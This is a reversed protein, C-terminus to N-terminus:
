GLAAELAETTSNVLILDPDKWAFENYARKVLIKRPCKIAQLTTANDEIVADAQLSHVVAEKAQGCVIVQPHYIGLKHDLWMRTNNRTGRPRYTTFYVENSDCLNALQNQLKASKADRHPHLEFWWNPQQTLDALRMLDQPRGGYRAYWDWEAPDLGDEWERMPSGMFKLDEWVRNNYDALCGDIDFAIVKSM